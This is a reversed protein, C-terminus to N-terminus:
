RGCDAVHSGGTPPLEAPPLVITATSSAAAVGTASATAQNVLVGGPSFDAAVRATFQVTVQGGPPLVGLKARLTRGDWAAPTGAAITGPELGPPLTDVLTLQQLAAGGENRLTVAFSVESGPWAQLPAAVMAASLRLSAAAVTPAVTPTAPEPPVPTSPPPATPNSGGPRPTASPSTQTPQGGSPTRTPFSQNSRAPIAAWAPSSAEGERTRLSAISLGLLAAAALLYALSRYSRSMRLRKEPSEQADFSRGGHYWAEAAGELARLSSAGV